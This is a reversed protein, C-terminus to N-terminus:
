PLYTRLLHIALMRADQWGGSTESEGDRDRTVVYVRYTMHGKRTISAQIKRADERFRVAQGRPPQKECLALLNFIDAPYDQWFTPSDDLMARDDM